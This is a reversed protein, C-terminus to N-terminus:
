ITTPTLLEDGAMVADAAAAAELMSAGSLLTELGAQVAARRRDDPHEFMVVPDYVAGDSITLLRASPAFCDLGPPAGPPGRPTDVGPDRPGSQLSAWTPRLRM